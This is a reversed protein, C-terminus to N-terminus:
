LQRHLRLNQGHRAAVGRLISTEPIASGCSIGRMAALSRLADAKTLRRNLPLGRGHRAATMPAIDLSALDSAACLVLAFSHIAKASIWPRATSARSRTLAQFWGVQLANGSMMAGRVRSRP